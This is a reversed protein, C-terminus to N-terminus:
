VLLGSNGFVELRFQEWMQGLESQPTHELHERLIKYKVLDGEPQYTHIAKFCVEVLSFYKRQELLTGKEILSRIRSLEFAGYIHLAQLAWDSPDVRELRELFVNPIVDVLENSLLTCVIDQRLFHNLIQDACNKQLVEPFYALLYSNWFPDFFDQSILCVKLNKKAELFRVALEPRTIDAIHKSHQAYYLSINQWHNQTLVHSVMDQTMEQLLDNRAELSFSAAQFLIKFNVEHDSCMVGACNDLADTNIIGGARAFAIRGRQTCGLNAGEAIISAQVEDGSIRLHANAKDGIAHEDEQRGKIYTGIGGFWLVDCKMKFILPILADAVVISSDCNLMRQVEPTLEVEDAGRLFIQGGKSLCGSRYDAWSSQTLEFLRHREQYSITLDPDPDLFIHRYDFAARLKVYPNQLLGNGFVDGSMDGVGIMSIPHTADVVRGLHELHTTVSVWVGKSTIGLKKHDYGTVGGSAFADNLWFKSNVAIENAIGSYSATGKDPAMVLYTDADDLARVFAAPVIHHQDDLNDMVELLAQVFQRYGQEPNLPPRVCLVGKAGDPVVVVNKLRQTNLLHFAERRYDERDSLRIGGRAVPAARLHVGEFEPHFVYLERMGPTRQIEPIAHLDHHIDITLARAHPVYLNTRVTSEILAQLVHLIYPADANLTHADPYFEQTTNFRELFYRILSEVYPQVDKQTGQDLVEQSFSQKLYSWYCAYVWSESCDKM